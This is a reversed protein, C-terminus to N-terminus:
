IEQIIMELSTLTEGQFNKEMYQHVPIGKNLFSILTEIAERYSPSILLAKMISIVAEEDKELKQQCLSVYYWAQFSGVGKLTLHKINDEGIEICNTFCKIAAEYEDLYYLIMGKFFQLDVYDPYLAIAKEIGSLAEEFNGMAILISYKLKYVMSPPLVTKSLFTLISLNVRELGKEFQKKNYHELAIYYHAWYTNEGDKIQRELMKINRESKRKNEMTPNLYGYHHVKVNLHGIRENPVNSLDLREHMRNIFKLGNNRFLRTHAVDTTNNKNIQDGYYNILHLTIVDYDNFHTGEHLKQRDTKDLEEDADLWLIWEETAKELAYNRADAFSGNWDFKEIKTQFSQCIEITKDSSGTDVIIIEDVVDKVSNLCRAICDEENKVIM